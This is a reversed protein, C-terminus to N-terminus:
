TDVVRLGNATAAARAMGGTSFPMEINGFKDVAILGGYGKKLTKHIVHNAASKLSAKAYAMRASVDYAIANRIFYEGVGTCSVACTDNDAFTGACLIPSDGVRGIMKKSLGGTSTGAALNGRSDLAACGVTGLHDEEVLPLPQGGADATSFYAPKVRDVKMEDAFKEAGDAALLVHKTRSMVLRALSIPNKVTRVGAVAGGNRDRGDMISSDLEHEGVANKVAGKGANFEPDDELQRIVKEVADLSSGGKSLVAIGIELAKNMSGLIRPRESKSRKRGAGGHLVLAYKPAKTEAANSM